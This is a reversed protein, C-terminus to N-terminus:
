FSPRHWQTLSWHLVTISFISKTLFNLNVIYFVFCVLKGFFFFMNVFCDFSFMCAYVM